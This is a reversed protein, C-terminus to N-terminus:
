MPHPASAKQPSFSYVFAVIAAIFFFLTPLRTSFPVNIYYRTSWVMMALALVMPPTFLYAACKEGRHLPVSSLPLVFRMEKKVLYVLLAAAGAAIVVGILIASVIAAKGEPLYAIAITQIVSISNNLLHILIGTWLSGSAIVAYGLGIGAIFAFPAQVLNGHLAFVFASTLIAFWDGYKRLPQMVVGRMAFEEVVAPVVASQVFLLVCGWVSAPAQVEPASLEIGFLNFFLILGNTAYNGAMCVLLGILALLIARWKNKPANLPIDPAQRRLALLFYVALFPLGVCFISFLIGYADQFLADNQYLDALGFIMLIASFIQQMLMFGLLGIGAFISLSRLAKKNQQAAPSPSPQFFAPRITITDMPPLRTIAM